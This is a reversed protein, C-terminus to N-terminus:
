KAEPEAPAADTGTAPEEHTLKALTSNGLLEDDGLTKDSQYDDAALGLARAKVRMNIDKSVLIM